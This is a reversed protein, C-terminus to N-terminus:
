ALILTDPVPQGVDRLYRAAGPHFPLFGNKSWNEPLTEAATAIAQRFRDNQSLVSRTIAYALDDPLSRHAVAFNFMGVTELPREQRRYTGMPLTAASLEPFHGLLKRRETATFDLFTVEAQAELELMVPTPIGSAFLFADILRDQLQGALDGPAGHRVASPRVGLNLLILPYYTGPTGGRPGVGVSHGTLQAHSAIGSSRLAVGHFPTDYMPFLARVDRFRNGQTWEGQGNWAQLAVGLTVMALEIERRHLLVINHNPGQTTRYAVQVGTADQAMAGWVPGYVAYAGGPPATGMTLAAPWAPNRTQAAAGRLAPLCLLGPMGLGALIVRRRM